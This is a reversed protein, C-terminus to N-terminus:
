SRAPIRAGRVWGSSQEYVHEQTRGNPDQYYVRLRDGSNVASMATGKKATAGIFGPGTWGQGDYQAEHINGNGDQTYVRIHGLNDWSVSAVQALATTLLLPAALITTLQM